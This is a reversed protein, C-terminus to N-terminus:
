WGFLERHLRDIETDTRFAELFEGCLVRVTLPPGGEAVIKALANRIGPINRQGVHIALAATPPIYEGRTGRDELERLLRGADEGRGARAYGFGLVGVFMPARSLIVTRELPAIAEQDRGLGCLALARQWHAFLYDPQRELSRLAARESEAYRGLTFLTAAALCLIVPALPDLECAQTAHVLADASNGAATLFLSYYAHALSARPNISISKEFHRGATQWTREFYFIYFAQSYNTEWLTPALAIAQTMARHAPPRALEAPMWGYFRLIGYCDALGAYALAYEPDLRITQEFCQIAAHMAAPSRQYWHHRGKLYLEFAEINSTSRTPAAAFTVKLRETIARAIEDQIEFIDEMQRDYRESWLQFGNQVDVLQVTVRVRQGARRVSGELVNAVHLKAAIERVEVSRGKFSFASSRAAVRLGEVQSLANLIEEALGDSFYESDKDASLNAFPLVAISQDPPPAHAPAIAQPAITSSGRAPRGEARADSNEPYLLRAVREVFAPPTNGAPLRTWQVASFSDPIDADADRTDDICVPVVFVRGRGMLHTRHDALRWELRFYGESRQQTSTSIVPVFLACERIQRRIMQDWTDGGRLETQDFWVEIGAPRLADCIRRAAEADESAYSLFVARPTETM